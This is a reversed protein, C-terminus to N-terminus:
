LLVKEGTRPPCKKLYGEKGKLTVLTRTFSNLPAYLAFFHELVSAYLYSSSGTLLNEDLEVEVELGRCVTAHGDINMPASISRASVQKIAEILGRSASSSKFDYLRLIEKFAETSEGRGTISLANLNLHSLLRWRAGNKLPPRLCATPQKLARIARTPPSGEVCQLPPETQSFPLKHPLDRNSCTTGIQLIQEYPSNPDFNIDVLSLYLDTGEDREYYGLKSPRRQAYWYPPSDDDQHTHNMGYFPLYEMQRGDKTTASVSDVSYVEYEKPRRSDATILYELQTQDVRVPDAQHKFLNVVPTCGLAFSKASINHELELDSTTFYFYLDLQDGCDAPLRGDLTVDVFMFKDPFVFFETLLRYGLFSNAPYPLLGEDTGFGVQKLAATGLAVPEKDDASRALVVQVCQGFFMHYLPHSHQPQDHLFLRLKKPALEGFLISSNFTKLSIRLVSAAGRVAASGPTSFPRGLLQASEIHVPLLDVDYVTNFCCREGQVPATELLTQKAISYRSDLQSEDAQFQVISMSPIPRQYHPYIVSLLADSLEGFEDDLKHHIRANLYAFSEILRSAHPDEVTDRQLGLRGAIKPHEEAFASGMQRLYALEKEYYPLLEDAM